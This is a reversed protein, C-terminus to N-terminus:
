GCATQGTCARGYGGVTGAACAGYELVADILSKDHNAKVPFVGNYTGQYEFREIAASFAAQPDLCPLPQRPFAHRTRFLHPRAAPLPPWPTGLQRLDHRAIL